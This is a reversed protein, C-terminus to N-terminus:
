RGVVKFLGKGLGLEELVATRACESREAGPNGLLSLMKFEQNSRNIAWEIEPRLILSEAVERTAADEAAVGSRM